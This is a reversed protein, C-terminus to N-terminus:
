KKPTSGEHSGSVERAVLVSGAVAFGAQRLAEAADRAEGFRTRKATAVLLALRATGALSM